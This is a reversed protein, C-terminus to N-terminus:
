PSRTVAGVMSRRTSFKGCALAECVICEYCVPRDEHGTGAFRLGSHYEKIGALVRWFVLVRHMELKGIAEGMQQAAGACLRILRVGGRVVDVVQGGFGQDVRLAVHCHTDARLLVQEAAQDAM